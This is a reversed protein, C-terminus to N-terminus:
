GHPGRTCLGWSRRDCWRGQHSHSGRRSTRAAVGLFRPKRRASRSSPQHFSSAARTLYEHMVENPLHLSNIAVLEQAPVVQPLGNTLKPM